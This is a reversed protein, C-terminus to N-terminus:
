EIACSFPWSTAAIAGSPSWAAAPTGGCQFEYTATLSASWVADSTPAAPPVSKMGAKSTSSAPRIATKASGVPAVIAAQCAFFWM